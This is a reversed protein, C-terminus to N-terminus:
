SNERLMIMPQLAHTINKIEQMILMHNGIPGELGSDNKHYKLFLYDLVVFAIQLSIERVM